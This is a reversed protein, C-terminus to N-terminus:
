FLKFGLRHGFTPRATTAPQENNMGLDNVDPKRHGRMGAKEGSPPSPTLPSSPPLPRYHRCATAVGSFTKQGSKAPNVRILNKGPPVFAPLDGFRATLPLKLRTVEAAVLNIPHFARSFPRPPTPECKTIAHCPKMM